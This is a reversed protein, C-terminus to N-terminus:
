PCKPLVSSSISGKAISEEGGPMRQLNQGAPRVEEEFEKLLLTEHAIDCGDMDMEMIAM